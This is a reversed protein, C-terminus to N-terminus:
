LVVLPVFNETKCLIMKGEKTLHPKQGSAWEYTRCGSTLRSTTSTSVRRIRWSFGKSKRRPNPAGTDLHINETGSRKWFTHNTWRGSSFLIEMKKPFYKKRQMSDKRTSKLHTWRKWSRSTQLWYTVRGFEGRTCLTDSSCDRNTKRELIISEQNTKRLFLTIGLWHVLRFSRDKLHNELVDTTHLKGM